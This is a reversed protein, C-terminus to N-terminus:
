LSWGARYERRVYKNAEPVNTVRMNEADWYIKEGVRVAVNGLAVMEALPGAYGFHSGTSGDGKCAAVWEKYHGRSRPITKPPLEYTEMKSAPVLRTGMGYCGTTMIGKDGIFFSGNNGDGLQEDEPVGEPRPPMKGGDHWYLTVPCMDGRQPFEYRVVSATPGSEQTAGVIEIPEVSIPAGLKLAWFPPDLIHCGMDGLAGCGFDWWGRWRHPLYAPNYPRYPAPGLWLDWDLTQPVPPTDTPRQLGQPWTPRNTWAHAERVPGIGGSWIIECAVRVGDAGHGQNGMQTVVKYRAAAQALMRAEYASHAIPKEVFVHKGLQMAAMAAVAHTNDPTAIIVGDIDKQKELMVRFDKYKPVDPYQRFVETAAREDVDCLAVINERRMAGLDTEARGGAGIGAINLKESPPTHAKGGVVHRPVVQCGAAAAVTGALFTRRTVKTKKMTAGKEHRERSSVLVSLNEAGILASSWHM